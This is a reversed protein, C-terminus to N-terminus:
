QHVFTYFYIYTHTYVYLCIFQIVKRGKSTPKLPEIQVVSLCRLVPTKTHNIIVKYFLMMLHMFSAVITKSMETINRCEHKGTKAQHLTTNCKKSGFCNNCTEQMQHRQKAFHDNIMNWDTNWLQLQNFVIEM